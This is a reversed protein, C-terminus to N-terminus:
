FNYRYDRFAPKYLQQSKEGKKALCTRINAPFLTFDTSTVKLYTNQLQQLKKGEKCSQNMYTYFAACLSLPPPLNSGEIWWQFIVFMLLPPPARGKKFGIKLSSFYGLIKRSILIKM